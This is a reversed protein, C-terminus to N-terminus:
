KGTIVYDTVLQKTRIESEKYRAMLWATYPLRGDEKVKALRKKDDVRRYEAIDEEVLPTLTHQLKRQIIWSPFFLIPEFLPKLVRPIWELTMIAICAAIPLYRLGRSWFGFAMERGVFSCATITTVAETSTAYSNVAKYTPLYGILKDMTLRTDRQRSRISLPLSRALDVAITKWLADTETGLYTWKGYMTDYLFDQVSAQSQPIRKIEDFYRVPYIVYQLNSANIVYPM